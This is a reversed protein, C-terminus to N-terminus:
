FAVKLNDIMVIGMHAVCFCGPEAFLVAVSSIKNVVIM